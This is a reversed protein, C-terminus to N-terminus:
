SKLSLPREKSTSIDEIGIATGSIVLVAAVSTDTADGVAPQDPSVTSTIAARANTAPAAATKIKRRWLSLLAASM